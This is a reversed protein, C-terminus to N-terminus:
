RKSSRMALFLIIAAIVVLLLILLLNDILVNSTSGPSTNADDVPAGGNEENSSLQDGGAGGANEGVASGADASNGAIANGGDGSSDTSPARSDTEAGRGTAGDRGAGGAGGAESAGSEAGSGNRSSGTGSSDGPVPIGDPFKTLVLEEGAPVPQYGVPIDAERFTILTRNFDNIGSPRVFFFVRKKEPDSQIAELLSTATKSEIKSQEGDYIRFTRIQRGGFDVLYVSEGALSKDIEVRFQKDLKELYSETAQIIRQSEEADLQAKEISEQLADIESQQKIVEERASVVGSHMEFRESLTKSLEVSELELEETLREIENDFQYIQTNNAEIQKRLELNERSQIAKISDDYLAAQRTAEEEVSEGLSAKEQRMEDLAEIFEIDSVKANILLYIVLLILIGFVAMIVDQFMM